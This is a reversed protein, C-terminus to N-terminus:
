LKEIILEKGLFNKKKKKPNLRVFHTKSYQHQDELSVKFDIPTYPTHIGNRGMSVSVQGVSTLNMGEKLSM